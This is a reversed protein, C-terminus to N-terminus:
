FFSLSVGAYYGKDDDGLINYGANVDVRFIKSHYGVGARVVLHNGDRGIQYLSRTGSADYVIKKYESKSGISYGYKLGASAVFGSEHEWGFDVSGFPMASYVDNKGISRYGAIDTSYGVNAGNFLYSLELGGQPKLYLGHDFKFDYFYKVEAFFLNTGYKGDAVRSTTKYDNYSNNLFLKIGSDRNIYFDKYISFSISYVDSSGMGKSYSIDSYGVGALFYIDNTPKYAIMVNINGLDFGSTDSASVDEANAFSGNVAMAFAAGDSLREITSDSYNRFSNLLYFSERVTNSYPGFNAFSVTPTVALAGVCAVLLRKNINNM